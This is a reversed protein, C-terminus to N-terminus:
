FLSSLNYGKCGKHKRRGQYAISAITITGRGEERGWGREGAWAGGVRERDSAGVGGSEGGEGEGRGGEGGEGRGGEGREGGGREGWANITIIFM